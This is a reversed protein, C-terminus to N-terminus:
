IFIGVNYSKDNQKCFMEDSLMSTNSEIIYLEDKPKTFTGLLVVMIIFSLGISVYATRKQRKEPIPGFELEHNEDLYVSTDPKDYGNEINETGTQFSADTYSGSM